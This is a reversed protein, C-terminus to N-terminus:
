LYSLNRPSHNNVFPRHPSHSPRNDLPPHFRGRRKSSQKRSTEVSLHHKSPPFSSNTRTARLIEPTLTYFADTYISDYPLLANPPPVPHLPLRTRRLSTNVKRLLFLHSGGDAPITQELSFFSGFRPPDFIYFKHKSTLNSLIVKGGARLFVPVPSSALPLKCLPHNQPFVLNRLAAPSSQFFCFTQPVRSFPALTHTPFEVSFLFPLSVLPQKQM